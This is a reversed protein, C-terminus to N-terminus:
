LYMNVFNKWGTALLGSVDDYDWHKSNYYNTTNWTSGNYLFENKLTWGAWYMTGSYGSVTVLRTRDCEYAYLDGSIAYKLKQLGGVTEVVAASATLFWSLSCAFPGLTIWALIATILAAAAFSYAAGKLEYTSQFGYCYVSYSKGGYTKNSIGLFQNSFDAGFAATLQLSPVSARTTVLSIEELDTFLALNRMVMINVEEEPLDIGRQSGLSNGIENLFDSILFVESSYIADSECFAYSFQMFGDETIQSCFVMSDDSYVYYKAGDYEIIEFCDEAKNRENPNESALATAGM